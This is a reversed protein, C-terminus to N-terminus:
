GTMHRPELLLSNPRLMITNYDKIGKGNRYITFTSSKIVYTISIVRSFICTLCKSCHRLRQLLKVVVAIIM